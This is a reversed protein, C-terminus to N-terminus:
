PVVTFTETKWEVSRDRLFNVHFVNTGALYYEGPPLFAPIKMDSSVGEGCGVPLGVVEKTELAVTFGDVIQAYNTFPISKERCAKVRFTLYDGAKYETQIMEWPLDYVVPPNDDIFYYYYVVATAILMMATCFWLFFALAHLFKNM